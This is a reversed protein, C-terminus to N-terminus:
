YQQWDKVSVTGVAPGGLDVIDGNLLLDDDGRDGDKFWLFIVGPEFEAGTVKDYDFLYWNESQPGPLPGYKWYAEYLEGDPLLLVLSTPLNPANSMRFSFYGLPFHLGEPPPVPESANTATVDKLLIGNSCVLTVFRQDKANPLSSVNMQDKDPIGDNNGDGNNPALDEVGNSVGDTDSDVVFPDITPTMTPTSTPTMTISPTSTASPTITMTSTQTLTRTSTPLPSNTPTATVTPTHTITQTPTYSSTPTMTVTSTPTVTATVTPTRTPAGPEDTTGSFPNTLQNSNFGSDTQIVQYFYTTSPTLGIDTYELVSGEVTGVTVYPGSESAARRITYQTVNPNKSARWSVHLVSESVPNAWGNASSLGARTDVVFQHLTDDPIVFGDMSAAESIRITHVGQTTEIGVAYSGIWITPSAWGAPQVVYDTYPSTAGFTVIPNASPDMAESFVLVFEAEGVTVANALNPTVDLVVAPAADGPGADANPETLAMPAYPSVSGGYNCYFGHTLSTDFVDWIRPCNGEDTPFPHAYMWETMEPGWYNERCDLWQFGSATNQDDYIDYNGNGYINTLNMKASELLNKVGGGQNGSIISNMVSGTPTLIGWGQNKLIGCYSVNGGILGDGQNRIIWSGSVGSTASVGNGQNGVVSSTNLSSTSLGAGGNGVIYSDVVTSAGTLGSGNDVIISSSVTGAGQAAKGTNGRIECDSLTSSGTVGVGVNNLIDSKVVSGNVGGNGNGSVVCRDASGQIGIDDNNRSISRLSNGIIGIGRNDQAACDEVSGTTRIGDGNNFFANSGKATVASIGTGINMEAVSYQVGKGILGPGFNLRSECSLLNTGPVNLGGADNWEAVCYQVLAAGNPSDLGWDVCNIFECHEFSSTPSENILGMGNEVTCYKMVTPSQILIHYWDDFHSLLFPKYDEKFEDNGIDCTAGTRQDGDYDELAVNSDLDPGIGQGICPSYPRLHYDNIVLSLPSEVTVGQTADGYVTRGKTANGYVTLRDPFLSKIIYAQNGILLVTKPIITQAQLKKSSLFFVQTENLNSDYVMRQSIGRFIPGIFNPTDSINGEGPYGGRVCSHNVNSIISSLSIENPFNDWVITNILSLQSTSEEEPECHPPCVDEECYIGGGWGNPCRNNSIICSIFSPSAFRASCYVGAGNGMFEETRNYAITCNVFKTMTFGECRVGGGWVANNAIFLCNFFSGGDEYMSVAGGDIANNRIFSCDRVDAAGSGTFYFGGGLSASNESFSCNYMSFSCSSATGGGGLSFANNSEFYCNNLIFSNGVNKIYIGGGQNGSVNYTFSCNDIITSSVSVAIIGAGDQNYEPVFNSEAPHYTKGHSIIIGNTITFSAASLVRRINEGDLITKYTKTDRKWGGSEYGGYLDVWPKMTFATENGTGTYTGEAVLVAYRNDSAADTIQNFAHEITAWPNSSSGDGLTDSGVGAAVYVVHQYDALNVKNTKPSTSKHDVSMPPVWSAASISQVNANNIEKYNHSTMQPSKVLQSLPASPQEILNVSSTASSLLTSAKQTAQLYDLPSRPTKRMKSVVEKASKLNTNSYLSTFLIPQQATGIANFTGGQINLEGDPACKVVTGAEVTLGNTFSHTGHVEWTKDATWTQPGFYSKGYIVQSSEIRPFFDITASYAGSNASVHLTFTANHAIAAASATVLFSGSAALTQGTAIDPWDGDMDNLTVDPDTSTITGTIDSADGAQNYLHLIMRVTEGKDWAKDRDNIPSYLTADDIQISAVQLEPVLPTELSKKADVKGSGAWDGLSTATSKLHRRIGEPTQTPYHSQLLAALGSALACAYSTGSTFNGDYASGPITTFINVGPAALDVLTDELGNFNSFPARDDSTLLTAAVGVVSDFSAPYVPTERQNENGSSAILVAHEAAADCAQQLMQSYGFFSLSLNIVQAGELVAYNIASIVRATTLPADEDVVDLSLIQVGFAAGAIGVGNNAQAGIIGAVRTGHGLDDSIDQNSDVFSFSDPHIAGFLDLHTSDVGSDIVAVTVDPRGGQQVNWADEMGMRAFHGTTQPYLPDTPTYSLSGRLNPEVMVVGPLKRAEAVLDLTSLSSDGRLLYLNAVPQLPPGANGNAKTKKAPSSQALPIAEFFAATSVSKAAKPSTIGLSFGEQARVIVEGPVIYDSPNSALAGMSFLGTLLLVLALM